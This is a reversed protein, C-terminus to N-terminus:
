ASRRQPSRGPTCSTLCAATARTFPSRRTTARFASAACWDRAANRHAAGAHLTAADLVRASYRSDENVYVTLYKGAKRTARRRPHGLEARLGAGERGVRPRLQAAGRVRPRQGLRVSAEHRGASFDAPSNNVTGTHATINKTTKPQRDHLYIDADSTTRPKVLALFRKDRSIPGLEYGDTNRYLLTRKYGDAAIEYLDFFRADRENTSVFFSKDDGAWGHFNAKLKAGPTLDKITGDTNRM